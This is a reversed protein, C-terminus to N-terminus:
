RLNRLLEEKKMNFEDETLIGRQYLTYLLEFSDITENDEQQIKIEEQPIDGTEQPEEGDTEEAAVDEVDEAEIDIVEAYDSIDEGDNETEPTSETLADRYKEAQYDAIKHVVHEPTPKGLYEVLKAAVPAPLVLITGTVPLTVPFAVGVIGAVIKLIRAAEQPHDKALSSTDFFSFVDGVTKWDMARKEDVSLSKAIRKRTKLNIKLNQFRERLDDILKNEQENTMEEGVIKTIQNIQESDMKM